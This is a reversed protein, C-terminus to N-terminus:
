KAVGGLTACGLVIDVKGAGQKLQDCSARCMQIKQPQSPNDYHWGEGPGSCDKNYTLTQASGGDPTYAVNVANIDLTQGAPPAPLKYECALQRKVQAVASIFDQSIQSPNSTDVLIAQNTGGGRAVTDLANLENGVGIV